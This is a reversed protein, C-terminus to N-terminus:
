FKLHKHLFNYKSINQISGITMKDGINNKLLRYYYNLILHYHNTGILLYMVFGLISIGLPCDDINGESNNFRNWFSHESRM